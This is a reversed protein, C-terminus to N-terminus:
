TIYCDTIIAKGNKVVASFSNEYLETGDTLTQETEASKCSVLSFVLLLSIFLLFAKKSLYM